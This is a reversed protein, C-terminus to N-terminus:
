AVHTKVKVNSEVCASSSVGSSSNISGGGGGQMTNVDDDVKEGVLHSHFLGAAVMSLSSHIVIVECQLVFSVFDILKSVLSQVLM